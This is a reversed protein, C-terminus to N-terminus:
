LAREGSSTVGHFEPAAAKFGSRGLDKFLERSGQMEVAFEDEGVHLTRLREGASEFPSANKGGRFAILNHRGEIGDSVFREVGIIKAACVVFINVREDNTLETDLDARECALDMSAAAAVFLDREVDPQIQASRGFCNKLLQRLEHARQQSESFLIL